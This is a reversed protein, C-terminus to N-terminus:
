QVERCRSHERCQLLRVTHGGASVKLAGDQALSKEEVTNTYLAARRINLTKRKVRDWAWVPHQEVYM